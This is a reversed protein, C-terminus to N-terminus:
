VCSCPDPVFFSRSGCDRKLLACLFFELLATASKTWRVQLAEVKAYRCGSKTEAEIASWAERRPFFISVPCDPVLAFVASCVKRCFALIEANRMEVARSGDGIVSVRISGRSRVGCADTEEEAIM